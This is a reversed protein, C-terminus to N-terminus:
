GNYKWWGKIRDRWEISKTDILTVGGKKLINLVQRGRFDLCVGVHFMPGLRFEAVAGPFPTPYKEWGTLLDESGKIKNYSVKDSCEYEANWSPLTIKYERRYFLHVLGWCDVLPYDRGHSGYRLSQYFPMDIM